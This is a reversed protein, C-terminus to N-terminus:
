TDDRSGLWKQGSLDRSGLHPSSKETGVKRKEELEAKDKCNLFGSRLESFVFSEM